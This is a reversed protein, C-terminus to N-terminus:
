EEVDEESELVVCSLKMWTASEVDIDDLIYVLNNWADETFDDKYLQMERAPATACYQYKIIFPIFDMNMDTENCIRVACRVLAQLFEASMLPQAEISAIQEETINKVNDWGKSLIYTVVSMGVREDFERRIIEKVKIGAENRIIM